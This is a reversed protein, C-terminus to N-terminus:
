KARDRERKRESVIERERLQRKREREPLVCTQLITADLQGLQM